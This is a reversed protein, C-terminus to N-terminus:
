IVNANGIEFDSFPFNGASEACHSLECGTSPTSASASILATVIILPLHWAVVRQGNAFTNKRLTTLPFTQKNHRTFPEEVRCALAM